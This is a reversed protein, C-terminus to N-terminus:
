INGKNNPLIQYDEIQGTQYGRLIKNHEEMNTTEVLKWVGKIKVKWKM